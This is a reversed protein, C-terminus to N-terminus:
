SFALKVLRMEQSEYPEDDEFKAIWNACYGGDTWSGSDSEFHVETHDDYRFTGNSSSQNDNSMTVFGGTVDAADSTSELQLDGVIHLTSGPSGEGIGVRTTSINLPTGTSAGAATQIEINKTATDRGIDVGDDDVVVIRDYTSAITAGKINTAM